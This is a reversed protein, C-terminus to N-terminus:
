TPLTLHTYSVPPGLSGVVGIRQTGRVARHRAHKRVAFARTPASRREPEPPPATTRASRETGGRRHLVGVAGSDADQMTSATCFATGSRRRRRRFRLASRCRRTRECDALVGPMPCYAARLSDAYHPAETWRLPCCNAPHDLIFWDDASRRM